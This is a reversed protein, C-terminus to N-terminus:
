PCVDVNDVTPTSFTVAVCHAVNIALSSEIRVCWAPDPDLMLAGVAPLLMAKRLVSLELIVSPIFLRKSAFEFPDSALAVPLEVYM